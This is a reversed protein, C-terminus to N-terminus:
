PKKVFKEFAPFIVAEIQQLITQLIYDVPPTVAEGLIGREKFTVFPRFSRHM